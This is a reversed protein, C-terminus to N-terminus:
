REGGSDSPSLAVPRTNMETDGLVPTRSPVSLAARRLAADPAHLYVKTSEISRHGLLAQVVDLPQPECEIGHVLRTAYTHRLIHPGSLNFAIKKSCREVLSQVGNYQMASGLEGGWLNVFVHPCLDGTVGLIEKRCLLYNVYSDVVEQHVYLVRAAGKAQAGNQAPNDLRVHFHAEEHPCNFAEGGGFHMDATFLSLAEGVRIGTTSLLDILFRDRVNLEIDRLRKRASQDSIWFPAVQPSNSSKVAAIPGSVAGGSEGGQPTGPAYYKTHTLRSAIDTRLLNQSDAWEYFGRLPVMWRGVTPQTRLISEGNTKKVPTTALVNRWLALHNVTVDRWDLDAKQICWSLFWALRGGYAKVTNPATEVNILYALWKTGEDHWDGNRGVIVYRTSGDPMTAAIREYAPEEFMRRSDALESM